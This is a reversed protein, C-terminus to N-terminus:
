KADGNNAERQRYESRRQKLELLASVMDPDNNIESYWEIWLNLTEDSVHQETIKM